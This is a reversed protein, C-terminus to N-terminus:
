PRAPFERRDIGHLNQRLLPSWLDSPEQWPLEFAVGPYDTALRGKIFADVEYGPGCYYFDPWTTLKVKRLPTAARLADAHERWDSWTRRVEDV